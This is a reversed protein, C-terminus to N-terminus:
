LGWEQKTPGEEYDIFQLTSVLQQGVTGGSVIVFAEENFRLPMAGAGYQTVLPMAAYHDRWDGLGIAALNPQAALNSASIFLDATGGAAIGVALGGVSVTRLMWFHGQDPGPLPFRLILVGSAPVIGSAATRGFVPQPL